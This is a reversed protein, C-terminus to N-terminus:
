SLSILLSGVWSASFARVLLHRIHAIGMHLFGRLRSPRARESHLIVVGGAGTDLACGVWEHARSRYPNHTRGFADEIHPDVDLSTICYREASSSSRACWALWSRLLSPLTSLM